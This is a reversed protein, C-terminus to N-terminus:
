GGHSAPPCALKGEAGTRCWKTGNLVWDNGGRAATTQLNTPGASAVDPETM